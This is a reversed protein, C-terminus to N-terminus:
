VSLSQDTFSPDQPLPPTNLYEPRVGLHLVLRFVTGIMLFIHAIYKSHQMFVIVPNYKCQKTSWMIAQLVHVM